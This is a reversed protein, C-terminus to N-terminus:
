CNLGGGAGCAALWEPVSRRPAGAITLAANPVLIGRRTPERHTRDPMGHTPSRRPVLAPSSNVVAGHPFYSGYKRITCRIHRSGADMEAAQEGDLWAMIQRRRTRRHLRRDTRRRPLRRPPPTTRPSVAPQHRCKCIKRTEKEHTARCVSLSVVPKPAAADQLPPWPCPLVVLRPDRGDLAQRRGSVGTPPPRDRSPAM